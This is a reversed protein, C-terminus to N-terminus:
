ACHRIRLGHPLVPRRRRVGGSAEHKAFTVLLGRWRRLRASKLGDALRIRARIKRSEKTRAPSGCSPQRARESSPRRMAKGGAWAFGSGMGGLINGALGNELPATLGSLDAFSDLSGIAILDVSASANTSFLGIVVLSIFSKKFM